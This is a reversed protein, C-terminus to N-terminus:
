ALIYRYVQLCVVDFVNKRNLKFCHYCDVCLFQYKVRKALISFTKALIHMKLDFHKKRVESKQHSMHLQM